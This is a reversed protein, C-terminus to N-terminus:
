QKAHTKIKDINGCESCVALHYETFFEGRSNEYIEAVGYKTMLREAATCKVEKNVKKAM